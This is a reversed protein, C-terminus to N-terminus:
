RWLVFFNRSDEGGHFGWIECRINKNDSIDIIKYEVSRNQKLTTTFRVPLLHSTGFLRIKTAVSPITYVSVFIDPHKTLSIDNPSRYCIWKSCAYLIDSHTLYIESVFKLVFPGQSCPLSGEYQMSSPSSRSWSLSKGLVWFVM